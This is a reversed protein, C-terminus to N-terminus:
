LRTVVGWEQRVGRGTPQCLGTQSGRKSITELHHSGAPVLSPCRVRGVLNFAINQGGRLHPSCLALSKPCLFLRRTVVSPQLACAAPCWHFGETRPMEGCGQTGRVRLAFCHHSGLASPTNFGGAMCPAGWPVGRVLVAALQPEAFLPGPGETGGPADGCGRCGQAGGM